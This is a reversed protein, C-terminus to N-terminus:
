ILVCKYKSASLYILKKPRSLVCSHHCAHFAFVSKVIYCMKSETCCSAIDFLIRDTQVSHLGVIEM